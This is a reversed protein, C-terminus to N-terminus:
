TGRVRRVRRVSQHGSPSGAQAARTEAHPSADDQYSTRGDSRMRPSAAGGSQYCGSVNNKMSGLTGALMITAYLPAIRRM